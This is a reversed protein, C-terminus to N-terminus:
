IKDDFSEKQNTLYEALNELRSRVAILGSALEEILAYYNLKERKKAASELKEVHEIFGKAGVAWIGSQLTHINEILAAGDHNKAATWATELNKSAHNYFNTINKDMLDAGGIKNLKVLVNADIYDISLM